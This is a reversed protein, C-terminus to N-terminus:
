CSGRVWSGHRTGMREPEVFASGGAPDGRRDLKPIQPVQLVALSSRRPKGEAVRQGLGYGNQGRDFHQVTATNIPPIYM